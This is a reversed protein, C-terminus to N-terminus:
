QDSSIDQADGTGGERRDSGLSRLVYNSGTSEYVFEAGWPDKNVKKIYPDPGWNSCTSPATVLAALGEETSPYQGCDTYYTDLAKGVEAIQIRAQKMRAKKLQGTVQGALIVILGGLIALVIMIEILTMGKQDRLQVRITNQIKNQMNSQMRNQVQDQIKKQVSKLLM